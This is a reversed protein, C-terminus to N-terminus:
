CTRESRGGLLKAGPTGATTCHYQHGRQLVLIAPEIGPRVSNTGTDLMAVARADIAVAAQIQDRAPPVAYSTPFGFVFLKTGETFHSTILKFVNKNM